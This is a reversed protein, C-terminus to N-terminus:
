YGGTFYIDTEFSDAKRASFIRIIDGKKECYCVYLIKSASSKGIAAFREEGFSHEDDEEYIINPDSFVSKAEIFSVGHKRINSVNKKEDWEFKEDRM